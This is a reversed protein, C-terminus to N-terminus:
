QPPKAEIELFRDPATIVSAIRESMRPPVSLALWGGEGDKDRHVTLVSLATPICHRKAKRHRGPVRPMAACIRVRSGADIRATAEPRGKELRYFMTLQRAPASLEPAEEVDRKSIADGKRKAQRLYQGVLEDRAPVLALWVEEPVALDPSELRHHAALDRSAQWSRGDEQIVAKIGGLLLATLVFYLLVKGSSGM